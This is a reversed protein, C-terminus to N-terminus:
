LKTALFAALQRLTPYDFLDMIDLAGPHREDIREHIQALDLSSLGIEFLNDDLGVVPATEGGRQRTGREGVVESTIELVLVELPDSSADRAAATGRGLRGLEERAADLEGQAYARELAHRQLKGSTTKPVRRVPLVEDVETGIRENIRGAVAAALPAFDVVRGRHQVFVLVRDRDGDPPRYGVAAVKGLDVGDLEAAAAELDHPYFNQGFAFIVDKARGTIAVRGRDLFALDGTDLWGEPSPGAGPEEGVFGSTVNPGRIELHGVTREALEDGGADVVRVECRRFPPGEIPVEVAHESDVGVEVVRDGVGLRRRDLRLSEFEDGPVPIAVGVTAEALGYVTQLATRPLGYPELTDVFERALPVSIPEAGNMLFRVSSLDLGKEVGRAHFAKLYHKYGFNPSGLVTARKEAAKSLWLLPRRSFLDTPMVHHSMGAVVFNLHFAILGMDHTLPMWNLGVDTPSYRAREALDVVNTVLNGHTLRIGKPERTSGSSFQILALDDPGVPAPEGVAEGAGAASFAVRAAALTELPGRDNSKEAYKELRTWGRDDVVLRPRGLRESVRFVKARHEDTVGIALPVPVLGGYLCAWFVEVMSRNDALALILPEGRRAGQAQLRGLVALARRRLEDFVLVSEAEAGEIFTISREGDGRHELADLLTRYEDM